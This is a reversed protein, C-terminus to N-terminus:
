ARPGRSGTLGRRAERAILPAGFFLGFLVPALLMMTSALHRLLDDLMFFHATVLQCDAHASCPAVVADYIHLVSPGTIALAVLLAVVGLAAVFAPTRLQRWALWTM